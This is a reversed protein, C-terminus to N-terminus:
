AKEEADGCAAALALANCRDCWRSRCIPIGVANTAEECNRRLWYKRCALSELAARMADFAQRQQETM